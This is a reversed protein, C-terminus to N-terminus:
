RNGGGDPGGTSETPEDPVVVEGAPSTDRGDARLSQKQPVEAVVRSPWRGAITFFLTTRSFDFFQVAPNNSAEGIQKFYEFRVGYTLDSRPTWALGGDMHVIDFSGADMGLENDLLTTRIYGISGAAVVHPPGRKIDDGFSLPVAVQLQSIYNETNQAVFLNPTVTRGATLVARGWDDTYAALLNVVPLYQADTSLTPNFPDRGVPDVVVLGAQLGGSWHKDFDHRWFATGQPNIERDLRDSGPPSGLPAAEELHLFQVGLDFQLSDHAWVHTVGGLLTAIEALTQTHQHRIPDGTGDDDTHVYQGSATEHVSTSLTAQHNGSESITGNETYILQSPQLAVGTADPASRTTLASAQGTAVDVVTTLTSLPGPTYFARSAAHVGLSPQDNHRLFELAEVEGVLEQIMKPTEWVFLVGPRVQVLIDGDKPQGDPANLVNDTAAMTGVVTAHVSTSDALAARPAAVPGGIAVVAGAAIWPRLM